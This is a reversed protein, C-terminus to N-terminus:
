RITDHVAGLPGGRGGTASVLLQGCRRGNSCNFADGYPRFKGSVTVLVQPCWAHASVGGSCLVRPHSLRATEKPYGGELVREIDDMVINIRAREFNSLRGLKM